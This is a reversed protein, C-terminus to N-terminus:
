AANRRGPLDPVLPFGLALASLEAGESECSGDDSLWWWGAVGDRILFVPVRSPDAWSPVTLGAPAALLPHNTVWGHDGTTGSGCLRLCNSPAWTGGQSRNRRHHVGHGRGGCVECMGMSRAMVVSRGATESWRARTTKPYPLGSM